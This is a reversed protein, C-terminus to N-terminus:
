KGNGGNCSVEKCNSDYYRIIKNLRKAEFIENKMGESFKNGFVWVERCTHLLALGFLTGLERDAPNNDDLMQPYLLHSAIPIRNRDIAFRCYRIADAVKTKVDGAYKSVIYVKTRHMIEMQRRHKERAAQRYERMVNAIAEGETPSSYGESNKYM